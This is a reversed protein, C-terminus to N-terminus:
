KPFNIILAVGEKSSLEFDGNLQETLLKMIRLGFTDSTKLDFNEPLGKGDDSLSLQYDSGLDNIEIKVKGENAGFAYKYSNTLFENIILGVPFSKDAHMQLKDQVTKEITIKSNSFSNEVNKALTDIYHKLNLNTVDKNKYLQQHVENISNIRNQLETLKNSFKADEFEEKAVEIFTDIISLNNKVRHHLEKQLSEIAQKQKKNKRYYISFIGLAIMAGLLGMAFIWKKQNANAVALEQEIKESKLLINEKEKKETQYKTEIEAIKNLDNKAYLSDVTQSYKLLYFYAENNKNLVAYEDSIEKYQMFYDTDPNTPMYNNAENLANAAEKEKKIKLFLTALNLNATVLHSSDKLSKTIKIAEKFSKESDVYQNLIRYQRGMNNYAVQVNSKDNVSEAANKSLIFYELSKTHLKLKDSLAGLANYVTALGTKDGFETGLLLAKNLSKEANSYLQRKLYVLGLQNHAYFQYQTNATEEARKLTNVFYTTALELKNANLANIGLNIYCNVSQKEDKVNKLIDIAKLYMSDAKVIQNQRAYLTALNAILAGQYGKDEMYEFITLSQLYSQESNIYDGDILELTGQMRYGLAEYKKSRTKSFQILSDNYYRAKKFDVYYAAIGIQALIEAKLTDQPAEKFKITLSDIKTQQSYILSSSLILTWFFLQKM